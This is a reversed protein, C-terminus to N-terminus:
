NNIEPTILKIVRKVAVRQLEAPSNYQIYDAKRDFCHLFFIIMTKLDM